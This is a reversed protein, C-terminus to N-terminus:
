KPMEVALISVDDKPGNVRCWDDVTEKVHKVADDLTKDSTEAISKLMGEDGLEELDKDMAEPVGDSFVFLRDGPSLTVVEEDYEIDEFWGIAFGEAPLLQPASEGARAVVAPPHGASVYRLEGTRINLTGYFMTFYLDGQDEMPFRRNLEAAVQGPPSVIIKGDEDPRALISTTTAQRTLSRAVTVSLLSSAVGHGSVDVIYLGVHEDDLQFFNLFDGALEDCPIYRWAVTLDEIQVDGSPLLSHQIRAAAELDRTMRANNQELQGNLLELTENQRSLKDRSTSLERNAHILESNKSVANEFTSILLNLVQQRGSQVVYTKGKLNVKLAPTDPDEHEDIPTNLLSSVRGLLYEADYPKTVYNDAGAQLGQIIDEPSSLTSLLILPIRRFKDDNKVSRCFQYGNMEPMEIDSIILDPPDEQVMQLAENGNQGWRVHYDASELRKILMKAQIRSDEAIVIRVPTSSNVIKSNPSDSHTGSPNRKPRLKYRFDGLSEAAPGAM